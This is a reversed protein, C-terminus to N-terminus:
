QSTLKFFLKCKYTGAAKPANWATRLYVTLNDDYLVGQYVPDVTANATPLTVPNNTNKVWHWATDNTTPTGAKWVDAFARMGITTVYINQTTIDAVDVLANMSADLAQPFNSANTGTWYSQSRHDTYIVLKSTAINETVALVVAIPNAINWCNATIADEYKGQPIVGSFGGTASKVTISETPQIVADIDLSIGFCVTSVGLFVMIFVLVKKVM